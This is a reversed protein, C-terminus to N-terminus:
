NHKKISKKPKKALLIFYIISKTKKTKLIKTNAFNILIFKYIIKLIEKKFFLYRLKINKAKKSLM